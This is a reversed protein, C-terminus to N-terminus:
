QARGLAVGRGWIQPRAQAGRPANTSNVNLSPDMMRYIFQPTKILQRGYVAPAVEDLYFYIHGVAIGLLQLCVVFTTLKVLMKFM